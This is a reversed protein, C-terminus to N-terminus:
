IVADYPVTIGKSLQRWNSSVLLLGLRSILLILCILLDPKVFKKVGIM